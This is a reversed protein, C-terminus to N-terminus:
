ASAEMGATGDVAMKIGQWVDGGAQATWWSRATIDDVDSAFLYAEDPTLEVRVIGHLDRPSKRDRRTLFCPMYEGKVGSMRQAQDVEEPTLQLM